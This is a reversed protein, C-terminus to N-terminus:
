RRPEPTLRVRWIDIKPIAEATLRSSVVLDDSAFVILYDDVKRSALVRGAALDIVEIVTDFYRNLDGSFEVGEQARDSREFASEWDPDAVTSLTWLRGSRDQRIANLRPPPVEGPRYTPARRHPRFWDSRRVIEQRKRGATDWQEIRYETM